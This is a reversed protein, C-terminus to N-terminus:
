DGKKCNDYIAKLAECDNQCNKYKIRDLRCKALDISIKESLEKSNNSNSRMVKFTVMLVLILIALLGYLLTSIAFGKNNLRM